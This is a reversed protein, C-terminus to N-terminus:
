WSSRPLIWMVGLFYRRAALPIEVRFIAVKSNIM